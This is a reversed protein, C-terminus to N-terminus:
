LLLFTFGAFAAAETVMGKYSMPLVNCDSSYSKCSLCDGGSAVPCGPKTKCMHYPLLFTNMCFKGASIANQAIGCGLGCRELQPQEFYLPRHKFAIPYRDPLPPSIGAAVIKLVPEKVMFRSALNKPADSDDNAVIRIESMPKRLNRISDANFLDRSAEADLKEYEVSDAKDLIPTWYNQGKGTRNTGQGLQPETGETPQSAASPARATDAAQSSAANAPEAVSDISPMAIAQPSGLLPALTNRTRTADRSFEAPEPIETGPSKTQVTQGDKVQGVVDTGVGCLLVLALILTCPLKYDCCNMLFEIGSSRKVIFKDIKLGGFDYFFSTLRFFQRM